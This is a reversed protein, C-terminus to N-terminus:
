RRRLTFAAAFAAVLTSAVGGVAGVPGTLAPHRLCLYLTAGLVLAVVIGLLLLLVPDTAPAGRVAGAAPCR